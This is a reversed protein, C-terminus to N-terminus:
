GLRTAGADGSRSPAPEEARELEKELKRLYSETLVVREADGGTIEVTRGDLVPVGQPNRTPTLLWLGGPLGGPQRASRQLGVLLDHGGAEYYHALLGATHGFLVTDSEKQAVADLRAQVRSWVRSVYSRLGGPLEGTRTFRTDAGLVQDWATGHERALGRFEALFLGALDVRTVPFAAAILDAAGRLHRVDVNLALFGGQRTATDLKATLLVWPERRERGARTRAREALVSATAASRSVSTASSTTLSVRTGTLWSTGSVAPPAPPRFRDTETDYTLPFGAHKLAEEVEVYTPTGLRMDPFRSRVRSLLGELSIGVERRVGAAAQSLALARSLELTRPYLELRPSSAATESAAAALPVIRSEPLPAMGKPLSVGRLDRLIAPRDALPDAAALVDAKEGLEIAYDAMEESTPDDSGELSEMAILVRGRRRLAALRPEHNKANGNLLKEAALAARVVALATAETREASDGGAGHRARLELALQRATMVRGAERVTEVLEDRLASM